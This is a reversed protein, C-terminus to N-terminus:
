LALAIFGQSKKEESALTIYSGFSACPRVHMSQCGAVGGSRDVDPQNLQRESQRSPPKLAVGM